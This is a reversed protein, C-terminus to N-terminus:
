PDDIIMLMAAGQGREASGDTVTPWLIAETEVGSQPSDASDDNVIMTLDTTQEATLMTNAARLPHKDRMTAASAHMHLLGQVTHM